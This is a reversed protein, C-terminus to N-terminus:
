DSIPYGIYTCVKLGSSDTANGRQMRYSMTANASVASQCNLTWNVGSGTVSSVTNGSVAYAPGHQNSFVSQNVSKNYTIQVTSGSRKVNIIKAPLLDNIPDPVETNKKYINILGSDSNYTFADSGSVSIESISGGSLLLSMDRLRNNEPLESLDIEITLVNGVLTETKIALDKVEYYECFEQMGPIWMTDNNDPHNKIYQVLEKFKTFDNIGTTLGHSFWHAIHNAGGSKSLSIAQDVLAKIPTVDNNEDWTNAFHRSFLLKNRNFTRANLQSGWHVGYVGQEDNSGEFDDRSPSGFASGVMLYGLNPATNAYGEDNTPVVFTRTRFGTNDFINYENQKVQFMKDYGAHEYSHNSLEFGNLIMERFQEWSTYIDFPPTGTRPMNTNIAFTLKYPIQTGCGDTYYVGSYTNGDAAPVGGKLYAYGVNYDDVYGDDKVMLAGAKKNYKMPAFRVSPNAHGDNLTISITVAMSNSSSVKVVRRGKLEGIM